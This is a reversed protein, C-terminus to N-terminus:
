FSRRCCRFCSRRARRARHPRAPPARSRSDAAVDPMACRVRAEPTASAASALAEDTADAAPSEATIRGRAMVLSGRRPPARGRRPRVLRVRHRPGRGRAAADDRSDRAKAGVDVGRTPEDMLLVRPRSMSARAIVVKQQNGGSLSGIPPRRAGADQDAADDIFRSGRQRERAPSLYGSRRCIARPEVADHEARGVDDRRIRLGQSGRAGDRHRRSASASRRAVAVSAGDLRVEGTADAHVGLVSELLETRGAGMLGYLGVIEGAAVDFSVGDVANRGPRPPVSCIGSRRAAHRRCAARRRALPRPVDDRRDDSRRDVHRRRGDDAGRRRGRRRSARHRRRRDRLLEELRHSIYVIAVGHAALDRIVNFLVPVEAASLASTPEDMMLVRVDRVLARAIEVIQQQGLPLTGVRPRPDIPHGLTALVRRDRGDRRARDLTGWRTCRERGVFLNEAVILDPFLQLEQHIIGIGRASRTARRRLRTM